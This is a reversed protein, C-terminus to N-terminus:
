GGAVQANFEDYAVRHCWADFDAQMAPFNEKLYHEMIPRVANPDWYKQLLRHTGIL